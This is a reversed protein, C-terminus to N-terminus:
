GRPDGRGPTRRCAFRDLGVMCTFGSSRIAASRASGNMARLMPLTRVNRATLTLGYLIDSGTVHPPNANFTFGQYVGYYRAPDVDGTQANISLQDGEALDLTGPVTANYWRGKPKMSELSLIKDLDFSVKAGSPVTGEGPSPVDKPTAAAKAKSAHHFVMLGFAVCFSGALIRGILKSPRHM